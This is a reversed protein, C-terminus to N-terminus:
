WDEPHLSTLVEFGTPTILVTHEFQASLSGDATVATWGDNLQRTKWKGLNIMPEITFIMGPELIIDHAEDCRFHPVSPEEHFERGIGHGTYERVVSCNQSEAYSQMVDCIEYLSIYPRLAKIGRTMTEKAVETIKRADNSVEGICFTESQDGHFGDVITTLDINLIDGERVFEKESPIGHCVVDNRSTCCSKPFGRYGLTAPIHGHDITYAHVLDDIAQTNMGAVIRPRIYEMLEANFRCANRMGQIEAETKALGSPSNSFSDTSAKATMACCRKYKAGSGCPCLANPRTKM